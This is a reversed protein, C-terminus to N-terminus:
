ADEVGCHSNTLSIWSSACAPTPSLPLPCPLLGIACSSILRSPAVDPAGAFWDVCFSDPFALFQLCIDKEEGPIERHLIDKATIAPDPDARRVKDPQM